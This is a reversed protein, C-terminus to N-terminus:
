IDWYNTFEKVLARSLGTRQIFMLMVQPYSTRQRALLDPNSDVLSSPTEKCSKEPSILGETELIHKNNNNNNNKTRNQKRKVLPSAVSPLAWPKSWVKCEPLVGPPAWSGYLKSALSQVLHKPAFERWGWLKDNIFSGFQTTKNLLKVQIVFIRNKTLDTNPSPSCIM